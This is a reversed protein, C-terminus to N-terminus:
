LPLSVFKEKSSSKITVLKCGRTWSFLTFRISQWNDGLNFSQKLGLCLCPYMKTVGALVVFVEVWFLSCAAQSRSIFQITWKQQKMHKSETLSLNLYKQLFESNLTQYPRFLFNGSGERKKELCSYQLNAISESAVFLLDRKLIHLLINM